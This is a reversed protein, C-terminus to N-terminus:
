ISKCPSSTITFLTLKKTKQLKITLYKYANICYDKWKEKILFEDDSGKETKQYLYLADKDKLITSKSFLKSSAIKQKIKDVHSINYIDKFKM